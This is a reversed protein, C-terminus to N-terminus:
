LLIRCLPVRGEFSFGRSKLQGWSRMELLVQLKAASHWCVADSMRVSPLTLFSFSILFAKQSTICVCLEMYTINQLFLHRTQDKKPETEARSRSILHLGEQYWRLTLLLIVAPLGVTCHYAELQSALRLKVRGGSSARSWSTQM